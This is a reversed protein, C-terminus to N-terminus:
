GRMPFPFTAPGDSSHRKGNGGLGEHPVPVTNLWPILMTEM